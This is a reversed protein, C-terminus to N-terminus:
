LRFHSSFKTNKVKAESEGKEDSTVARQAIMLQINAQRGAEKCKDKKLHRSM